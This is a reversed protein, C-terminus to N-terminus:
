LESSFLHGLLESGSLAHSLRSRARSEVIRVAFLVISSLHVNILNYLIWLAVHVHILVLNGDKPEAVLFFHNILVRFSGRDHSM